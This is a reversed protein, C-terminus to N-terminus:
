FGLNKDSPSLMYEPIHKIKKPTLVGTNFLKISHVVVPAFPLKIKEKV